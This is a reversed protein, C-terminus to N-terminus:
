GTGDVERRRGSSSSGEKGEREEVRLMCSDEEEEELRGLDVERREVRREEEVWEEAADAEM